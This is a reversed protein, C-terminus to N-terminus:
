KMDELFDQLFKEIKNKYISQKIIKGNYKIAYKQRGQTDFGKKIIHPNNKILHAERIKQKTEESRHKGLWYKTHRHNQKIKERSELSHHKNWMPNNEGNMPAHNQKIKNKHAETFKRGRLAKSIKQNHELSNKCGYRPHSPGCGFSSGGPTFNFKPQYKNIYYIEMQNLHNMSCDNIEWLVKYKYRSPNNQLIKNIKKKDYRAPELHQHRRREKHLHSDQGVYVINNNTLDIYCYIGKSMLMM